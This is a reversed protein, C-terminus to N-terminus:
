PLFYFFTKKRVLMADLLLLVHLPVANRLVSNISCLFDFPVPGWFFRYFSLSQVTLNWFIGTWLISSMLQNLLTRHHNDREFWIISYTSLVVIITLCSAFIVGIIKSPRHEFLGDFYNNNINQSSNCSVECSLKPCM